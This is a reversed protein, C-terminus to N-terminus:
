DCNLSYIVLINTVSDKTRGQLVCIGTASVCKQTTKCISFGSGSSSALLHGSQRPSMLPGKQATSVRRAALDLFPDGPFPFLGWLQANVARSVILIVSVLAGRLWDWSAPM